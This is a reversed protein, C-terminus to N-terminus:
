TTWSIWLFLARLLKFHTVPHKSDYGVILTFLGLHSLSSRCEDFYTPTSIHLEAELGELKGEKDSGWLKRSSVSIKWVDRLQITKNIIFFLEPCSRITVQDSQTESQGENASMRQQEPWWSKCSQIDMFKHQLQRKPLNLVQRRIHQKPSHWYLLTSRKHVLILPRTRWNFAPKASWCQELSKPFSSDWLVGYKLNVLEM